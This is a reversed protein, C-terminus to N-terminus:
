MYDTLLYFYCLQLQTTSYPNMYKWANISIFAM